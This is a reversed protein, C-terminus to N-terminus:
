PLSITHKDDCACILEFNKAVMLPAIVFRFFGAAAAQVMSAAEIPQQDFLAKKEGRPFWGDQGVPVLMEGEM